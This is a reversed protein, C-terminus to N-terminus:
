WKGRARRGTSRVSLRGASRRKKQVLTRMKNRETDWRKVKKEQTLRDRLKKRRACRTIKLQTSLEEDWWKKSRDTIRLTKAFLERLGKLKEYPKKKKKKLRYARGLRFVVGGKGEGEDREGEENGRGTRGLRGRKTREGGEGCEM